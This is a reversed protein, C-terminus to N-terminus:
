ALPLKVKEWDEIPGPIVYFMPNCINECEQITIPLIHKWDGGRTLVKDRLFNWEYLVQEHNVLIVNFAQENLDSREFLKSRDFNYGRIDAEDCIFHLYDNMKSIPHRTEKFRLLQPHNKYGVTNGKLVNLALLGERWCAVLGKCDLYKPHITWLRM